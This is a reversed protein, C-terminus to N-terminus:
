KIVVQIIALAVYAVYMLLFVIGHWKHIVFGSFLMFVVFVALVVALIIISELIKDDKLGDYPEFHTGFSTYLMWPLGLGVMINFTNSGFANSVAQNGFGNEAAVKSAVYNPLSTGAFYFPFYLKLKL